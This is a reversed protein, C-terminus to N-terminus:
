KLKLGEKQSGTTFEWILWMTSMGGIQLKARVQYTKNSELPEKPILFLVNRLDRKRNLPVKPTHVYAAVKEKARDTWARHEASGDAVMNQEPQRGKRSEWIEIDCDGLQRATEDQIQVSVAYGCKTVDQENEPQDALPNPWEPNGFHTPVNKKSSCRIRM